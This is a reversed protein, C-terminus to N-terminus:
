KAAITLSITVDNALSISNSGVGFDLRNIIFKGAFVSGSETKKYTFPLDIKRSTKKITLIGHLIYSGPETGSTIQESKINIHPFHAVDFYDDDRLHRDRTNNGTSISASSVTADFDSRTLNNADFRITAALGSFTGTTSFGFNKISFSISSSSAIPTLNQASSIGTIMCCFLVSGLTILKM